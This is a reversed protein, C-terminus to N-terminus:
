THTYQYYQWYLVRKPKNVLEAYNISIHSVGFFANNYPAVGEQNLWTYARKQRKLNFRFITILLNIGIKCKYEIILKTM